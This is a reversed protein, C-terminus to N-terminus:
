RRRRKHHHGWRRVSLNQKHEDPILHWQSLSLNDQQDMSSWKRWQSDDQYDYATNPDCPDEPQQTLIHQTRMLMRDASEQGRPLFGITLIM